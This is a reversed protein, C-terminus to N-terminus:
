LLAWAVPDPMTKIIIHSTIHNLIRYDGPEIATTV